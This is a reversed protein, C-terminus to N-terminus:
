MSAKAGRLSYFLILKIGLERVDLLFQTVIGSMELALGDEAVAVVREDAVEEVVERVVKLLQLELPEYGGAILAVGGVQEALMVELISFVEHVLPVLIAISEGIGIFDPDM